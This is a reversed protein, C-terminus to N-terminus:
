RMYRHACTDFITVVLERRPRTLFTRQQVPQWRLWDSVVNHVRHDSLSDDDSLISIPSAPAQPAVEVIDVEQPALLVVEIMEVEQPPVVAVNPEVIPPIGVEDALDMEIDDEDVRISYIEDDEPANQVANVDFGVIPAVQVEMPQDVVVANAFIPPLVDATAHFTELLIVEPEGYEVDEAADIISLIFHEEQLQDNPHHNDM